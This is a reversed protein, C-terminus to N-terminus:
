DHKVGVVDIAADCLVAASPYYLDELPGSTPAPADPLTIRRPTSRLEAPGLQEVTAAIVEGALGCTRWSGDVVLLRGTKRVSAVVQQIRLPNTIRLDIVEASIGDASLKHAADLALLTSHSAAVITIDDGFM